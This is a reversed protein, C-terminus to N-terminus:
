VSREAEYKDIAHGLQAFKQSFWPPVVGERMSPRQIDQYRNGLNTFVAVVYHRYKHGPLSHVIGADGGGSPMWGPKHAFTVEAAQNAALVNHGFCVNDVTVTGDNVIWRRDVAHPIGSAPYIANGYNATSLMWNWGQQGLKEILFSRSADSLVPTAFGGGPAIWLPNVAGNILALLKATDLSSMTIAKSWDGGTLPDAGALRLTRLHLGEFEQNLVDIADYDWLLKIMACSAANSSWTLMADLYDRISGSSENGCISAWAATSPTYEPRYYYKDEISVVAQDVLRLVGYAIMLKMVSAPYPLMFHIPATERGPIVDVSGDGDNGYWSHDDWRTWRVQDTTFAENVPLVLGHPYRPSMLVTGSSIIQGAEDLELVTADVQPQQAILGPGDSRKLDIVREFRLDNMAQQLFEAIQAM